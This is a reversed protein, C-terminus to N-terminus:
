LMQTVLLYLGTLAISGRQGSGCYVIIPQDKAPLKDLNKFLDTVPINVSDKIYGNNLREDANRLDILTPPTTSAM